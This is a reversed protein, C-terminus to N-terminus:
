SPPEQAAALQATLDSIRADAAAQTDELIAILYLRNENLRIIEQGMVRLSTAPSPQPPHQEKAPLPQESMRARRSPKDPTSNNSPKGSSRSRV